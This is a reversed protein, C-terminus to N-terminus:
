VSFWYFYRFFRRQLSLTAFWKGFRFTLFNFHSFVSARLVLHTFLFNTLLINKEKAKAKKFGWISPYVFQPEIDDDDDRTTELLEILFACV